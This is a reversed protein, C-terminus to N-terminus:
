SKSGSQDLAARVARGVYIRLLERKYAASGRVDSIIEAEDAAADGAAKLLKDDITSGALLKEVATLRTAKPTAASVVIRASKIAASVM